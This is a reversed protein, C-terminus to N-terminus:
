YNVAKTNMRLKISSKRAPSCSEFQNAYKGCSIKGFLGFTDVLVRVKNTVLDNLMKNVNIVLNKFLPYENFM